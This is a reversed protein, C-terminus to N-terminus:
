LGGEAKEIIVVATVEPRRTVFNGDDDVERANHYHREVVVVRYHHSREYETSSNMYHWRDLEAGDEGYVRGFTVYEGKSPIPLHSDAQTSFFPTPHVSGDYEDSLYFDIGILPETKVTM